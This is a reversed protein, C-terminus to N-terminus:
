PNKKRIVERFRRRRGKRCQDRLDKFGFKRQIAKWVKDETFGVVSHRNGYAKENSHNILHDMFFFVDGRQLEVVAKLEWLVLGGGSFEGFPCLCCMGEHFGMLDRHPLTEVPKGDVAINVACGMWPGCLPRHNVDLTYRRLDHIITAHHHKPFCLAARSWLLQSAEIFKASAEGDKKYDGSLGVESNRRYKIWNAYRRVCRVGRSVDKARPLKAQFRTVWDELPRVHALDPTVLHAPVRYGVIGGDKLKIATPMDRAKIRRFHGAEHKQIVWEPTKHFNQKTDFARRLYNLTINNFKEVYEEDCM